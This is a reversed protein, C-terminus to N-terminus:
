EAAKKNVSDIFPGKDIIFRVHRGKGVEEKDDRASVEFVLKRGKVEVLEAECTVTFGIPTAASHAIDVAAGVTTLGEELFPEVIAYCTTEMLDVLMPTSFVPPLGPVSEAATLERTVVVQKTNKLGAKLGEKIGETMIILGKKITTLIM